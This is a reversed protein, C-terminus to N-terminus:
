VLLWGHQTWHIVLAYPNIPVAAVQNLANGTFDASDGDNLMGPKRCVRDNTITVSSPSDVGPLISPLM